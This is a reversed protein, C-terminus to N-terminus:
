ADGSTVQDMYRRQEILTGGPRFVAGSPSGSEGAPEGITRHYAGTVPQLLRYMVSRATAGARDRILRAWLSVPGRETHPRDVPWRRDVWGGISRHLVSPDLQRLAWEPVEAGLAARARRLTVAVTAGAGWARAREIVEDWPPSEIAIERRVDEFWSLRDAGGLSAHLALHVLTDVPGFTPASVGEVDVVRSREFAGSIDLTFTSRISQRNLVHWHIDAETELPLAVHLQARGERAILRWNRDLLVAGKRELATIARRFDAQAILLDLDQFTRLAAPRYLLQAVVPGKFTLWRIEEAEMLSGFWRLGEIVRLQHAAHGVSQRTLRDLVAADIGPVRRIHPELAGLVRQEAARELLEDVRGSRVIRELSAEAGQEDGLLCSRMAGVIPDASSRDSTV